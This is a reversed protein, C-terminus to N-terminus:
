AEIGLVDDVVSYHLFPQLPDNNYNRIVTRVKIKLVRNKLHQLNIRDPRIQIDLVRCLMGFLASRSKLKFRGNPVSRDGKRPMDILKFVRYARYVKSGFHNGPEIIEFHLFIKPTKNFLFATDHGTFKAQYEGEPILLSTGDAEIVAEGPAEKLVLPVIKLQANM